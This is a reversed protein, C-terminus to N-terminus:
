RDGISTADSLRHLSQLLQNATPRAAPDRSLCRSFLSCARSRRWQVPLEEVPREWPYQKAGEACEYAEEAGGHIQFTRSRSLSEFLIVGIAWMDLSPDVVMDMGATHANIAEPPAYRLTCSV